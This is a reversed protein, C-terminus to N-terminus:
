KENTGNEPINFLTKVQEYSMAKIQDYTYGAAPGSTFRGAVGGPILVYRWLWSASLFTTGNVGDNIFRMVKITNLSPWFAITNAGGGARTIYPLPLNSFDGTSNIRLYVLVVGRDIITQTLSTATLIFGNGSTGDITISAPTPSAAWTSYIV